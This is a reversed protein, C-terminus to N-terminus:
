EDPFAPLTAHSRLVGRRIEAREKLLFAAYAIVFMGAATLVITAGSAANFYYSLFVGLLGSVSRM